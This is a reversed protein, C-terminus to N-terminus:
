AETARMGDWVGQLLRLCIRNNTPFFDSRTSGAVAEAGLATASRNGVSDELPVERYRGQRDWPGM